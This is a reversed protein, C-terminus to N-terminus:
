PLAFTAEVGNVRLLYEGPPFPGALPLVADYLKAIQTCIADAPRQSLITIEITAAARTQTVGSIETCGDGVIGRVHASPPTALVVEVSDVHIPRVIVEPETPFSPASHHCAGASFLVLLPLLPRARV